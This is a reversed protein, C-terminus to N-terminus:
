EGFGRETAWGNYKVIIWYEEINEMKLSLTCCHSPVVQQKTKWNNLDGTGGAQAMFPLSSLLQLLFRFRDIVINSCKQHGLQREDLNKHRILTISHSM